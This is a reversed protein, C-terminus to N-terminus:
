PLSLRRRPLAEIPPKYAELEEQAKLEAEKARRAMEQEFEQRYKQKLQYEEEKKEEARLLQTAGLASAFLANLAMPNSILKSLTMRDIKGRMYAQILMPIVAGATAAATSAAVSGTYWLGSPPQSGEPATAPNRYRDQMLPTILAGTGTLLHAGTSISPWSAPASAGIASGLATMGLPIAYPKYYSATDKVSQWASGAQQQAEQWTTPRSTWANSAAQQIGQWTPSIYSGATDKARNWANGLRACLIGM